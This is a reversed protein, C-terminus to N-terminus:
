VSEITYSVSSRVRNRLLVWFRFLLWLSLVQVLILVVLFFLFFVLILLRPALPALLGAEASEDQVLRLHVVLHFIILVPLLPCLVHYVGMALSLLGGGLLQVGM